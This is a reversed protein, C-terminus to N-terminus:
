DGLHNFRISVGAGGGGEQSAMKSQADSMKGLGDKLTSSQGSDSSPSFNSSSPSGISDLGGTSGGASSLTALRDYNDGMTSRVDGGGGTLVSLKDLSDRAVNAAGGGAGAAGAAIGAGAMAAGAVGGAIAAAGGAMGGASLSPAGSMMAAAVGPIHLALAGYIVMVTSTAVIDMPNISGANLQGIYGILIQSLQPGFAAMVCIVVLKLGASMLYGFYKEAFQMTFGAGSMGLQFFGISSVIVLEIQTALLQFTILAFGVITFVMSVVVSLGIIIDTGIGGGSSAGKYAEWISLAANKGNTMIESPTVIQMGGGIKTGIEMFSQTILPIWQPGMVILTYFFGWSFVKNTIGGLLDSLDGSSAIKRIGFLCLDFGVLMGFIQKAYGQSVNMQGVSAKMFQALISDLVGQTPASQAFVAGSFFTLLMLLISKKM